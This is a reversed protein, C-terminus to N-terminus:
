RNASDKAVEQVIENMEDFHERISKYLALQAKARQRNQDPYSIRFYKDGNIYDILFRIGVEFTMIAAGYVMSDLEAKTLDKGATGIYGETFVRFLGLDLEMGEPEDEARTAAAFRVADGFDYCALGPMCTDLDIIVLPDLTDKDFLINNTKTDNHTVRLPVKGEDIWRCLTEAFERNQRVYELEEAVEEARGSENRAADEFFSELRKRTNHFDPISETLQSADFDMLQQMFKGFAQGSLTLIEKKGDITDFSLSNEVYNYLRWYEEEGKEETVLYNRGESTSEFQLRRRKEMTPQKKMIHKTIKDINAMMSAPDKFVYTNIRQVLYQNVEKGDYVAAYYTTNIHGSPIRRYILVEGSIQFEQCIFSIKRYVPDNRDTNMTHIERLFFISPVGWLPSAM